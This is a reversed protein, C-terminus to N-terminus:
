NLTTESQKRPILFNFEEINGIIKSVTREIDLNDVILELVAIIQMVIRLIRQNLKYKIYQQKLERFLGGITEYAEMRYRISTLLYQIMAITTQAVQVDFNTSQCKGLGFLQKMEKFFVEITWRINYTEIMKVFSLSTDTSLITHWKGNVGKKSLFILVQIGDIKAYYKRYYFNMKRCRKPKEKKKKLAKITVEKNEIILTSNYKYMGIIEVNTDVSKLQKVVSLSTFWSDMLIYDIRIKRKCIRKFIQIMISTKKSNLELFRQSAKTTKPRITSQQNKREKPTLGYKTTKSERHFSFDVPVLVSGNWYGAVLLKFGFIYRKTVHNYIKSIGEITKGTKPIDTDDFVLCKLDNDPPTFDNDKELYQSVFSLLLRRWDIKQNSLIRYYADKGFNFIGKESNRVFSHITQHGLVPLVLLIGLLEQFPIGSKKVWTFSKSTKKFKLIGLHNSLYEPTIWKRDFIGKIEEIKAIDKNPLM